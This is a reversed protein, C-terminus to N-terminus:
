YKLLKSDINNEKEQFIIQERLNHNEKEKTRLGNVLKRFM